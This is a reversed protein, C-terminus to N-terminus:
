PALLLPGSAQRSELEAHAAAAAALPFVKGPEVTLVGQAVADFVSAAMRELDQRQGIYHFLIPRTVSNSRAALKAVEFPEVSGSSQGFNVLHGRLALSELSGQFTDRGVSDYAVDVGRGGTIARVREVFNEQRYLITHTCGAHRALEAKADSGVTGIVTAGLHRALQCLLRGVGGAAAHVLIVDGSQIRHVERVLMEATLGKLLVTAAVQESIGSPLRVALAAPLIRESTYAGYHGTVYAVCDGVAFGSVGTGIEEIVGAAEIGPIGPLPLTRYLGSRVYVDHFNVGIATQRIRVEGAGPRGVTISESKLVEPGGTERLVIATAM